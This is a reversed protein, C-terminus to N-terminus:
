RGTGRTGRGNRRRQSEASESRQRLRTPAIGHHRSFDRTFHGPDNVGVFAMVEEVTLFTRELLQRAREMRLARRYRAPPMGVDRRFLVALRSPSLHVQAALDSVSRAHGGTHEMMGIVLTVRPDM